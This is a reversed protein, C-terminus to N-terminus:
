KLIMRFFVSGNATGIPTTFVNTATSGPVDHWGTTIGVGPANTQGQLTWGTYSSPWSLTLQGRSVAFVMNTPTGPLGSGRAVRLKGDIGLTSTDWALGAGPTAPIINNFSGSYIGSVANFLQIADGVALPNGVNNIVLTGGITVTILGTVTDNAVSTGKNVVVVNTSGPQLILNNDITLTNVTTDPFGPALTAGNGFTVSGHVTGAGILTQGAGLTFSAPASVDLTGGSNIRILSSALASSAGVVIGYSSNITTPGTYTSPGGDLYLNGTGTNVPSPGVALGGTGGVSATLHLATRLGFLNSTGVLTVPGNFTNGNGGSDFVGGGNLVLNKTVNATFLTVVGNSEVTLTKTQDGMDGAGQFGIRGLVIHIDGLGSATQILTAATAPGVQTLKFGNGTMSTLIDFRSAGGISTDGALTLSNVGVNVLGGGNNVLAGQGNLGAGAVILPKLSSAVGNLDLTGTNTVYLPSATSGLANLNAYKLIGNSVMIAGTFQSADGALVLTNTAAKILMGKGAGNDTLTGSNTYAGVGQVDLVLAGSNATITPFVPINSIGVRFSKTGEMDVSANISGSGTVSYAIANNSLSILGIASTTLNIVNTSATDDFIPNDGPLYSDRLGTSLNLWNTTTNDWVNPNSAAGGKWVLIGPNGTINVQIFPATTAPNVLSVNYRSSGSAVRLNAASPTGSGYAMVTYASASSLVGLPNIQITSVGNLTLTGAVNILDNVGNGVTTPDSALKIINTAGNLTLNNNFTLTSAAVATGPSIRSGAAAAANGMVSGSGSLTQGNGLSLGGAPQSADLVTNTALSILSSNAISGGAGLSLNGADIFTPGSYTEASPLYLAGTGTKHYGGAGGIPSLLGLPQNVQITNTGGLTVAGSLVNSSGAEGDSYLTGNTLTTLKSLTNVSHWIGFTAGPMVTITKSPDGMGINYQFGLTGGSVLIDGVGIDGVEHMWIQQAGIKTLKFGNGLFYGGGAGLTNIGIDWRNGTANLTTDGALTIARPGGSQNPATASSNNIAGNTGGFGAGQLTMPEPGPAQGNLDLTAGSAVTTGGNTAGLSQAGNMKLVGGNINVPGTYDNGVGTGAALLVTGNGNKTIGTGGSIRGSGTGTVSWNTNGNFTISAPFLAVVLSVNTNRTTDDFTVSDGQHFTDASLSAPNTWNPTTIDWSNVAVNNTVGVWALNANSGTVNLRIQHATSYDITFGYRAGPFSNTFQGTLTGTYTAIVYTGATLQQLPQINLYANPDITINGNVVLLDNVGGGTTTATGLKVDLESGVGLTLNSNITLTGPINLPSMGMRLHAGQTTTSAVTVPVNIPGIGALTGTNTVTVGVTNNIPSALALTGSTVITKGSHALSGYISASGTVYVDGPGTLTNTYNQVANGSAFAVAAGSPITLTNDPIYGGSGFALTGQSLTTGGTYTMVAGIVNTGPGNFKLGGVGSFVASLTITKGASPIFSVVGLGPSNTLNVAPLNASTWTWNTGPGNTYVSSLGMQGTSNQDMLVSRFNGGSLNIFKIQSANATGCVVGTDGLYIDGGSVNLISTGANNQNGLSIRQAYITGGSINVTGSCNNLTIRVGANGSAGSSNGFNRLVYVTGGTLNFTGVAATNGGAGITFWGNAVVTGGSVNLSGNGATALELGSWMNLTGNNVAITGTSGVVNAPKIGDQYYANGNSPRAVNVVGGNLTFTGNGANGPMFFLGSYTGSTSINTIDLEGGNMVFNGAGFAGGLTLAGLANTTGANFNVTGDNSVDAFDNTTSPVGTPTWANPDTFVDTGVQWFYSNQAWATYSTALFVLALFGGALRGLIRHTRNQLLTHSFKM